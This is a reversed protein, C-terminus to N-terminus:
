LARERPPIYPQRIKYRCRESQSGVTVVDQEAWSTAAVAYGSLSADSATVETDWVLRLDAYCLPLLSKIWKAEKAASPWLRTRTGYCERSFDYLNRLISLFGRHLLMIQILHGLFVEIDKGRVQPRTELWAATQRILRIKRESGCVIGAKGFVRYGLSIVDTTADVEEHVSFGKSRLRAVTLDKVHQVKERDIGAVNLNDAYALVM